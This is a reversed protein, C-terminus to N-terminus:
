TVLGNLSGKHGSEGQSYGSPFRPQRASHHQESTRASSGDLSPVINLVFCVASSM